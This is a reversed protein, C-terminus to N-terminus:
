PRLWPGASRPAWLCDAGLLRQRPLAGPVVLQSTCGEERLSRLSDPLPLLDAQDRVLREGITEDHGRLRDNLRRRCHELLQANLEAFSTAHPIPLMFNRRAYGVLGEVKGKDNGKGPRGFCDAFLYHSQLESFVRTRLRRGDGLIRAV